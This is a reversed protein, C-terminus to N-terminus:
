RLLELVRREIERKTRAITEEPDDVYLFHVFMLRRDDSVELVVSGPTLSIVSALITIEVDTRADLPVAFIAPRMYNTPTLVDYGVRLASAIVDLAFFIAFSVLRAGKEFYRTRTAVHAPVRLAVYGVVFGVVLDPTTLRGRLACWALALVLNWALFRM